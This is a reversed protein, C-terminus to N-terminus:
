TLKVNYVNKCEWIGVKAGESEIERKWDFFPFDGDWELFFLAATCDAEYRTLWLMPKIELETVTSNRRAAYNTYHSQSQNTASPYGRKLISSGQRHQPTPISFM